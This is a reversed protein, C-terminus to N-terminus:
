EASIHKDIIAQLEGNAKMEAIVENIAATLAPNEKNIVIAYDEVTFPEEIVVVDESQSALAIAVQDDIMVANIKKQSLAQVAEFGKSYREVTAGEIDGAYIDGTTGLQVGISKGTLDAASNITGVDDKHIIILQSAQVYTDTFDVSHKREETVTFGSVGIDAKGTTVAPIVSDFAMDEIHLELGLKAAINKAIDVDIGVFEDGERSEYPPFEANTAMTLVGDAVLTYETAAAPADASAEPAAEKSGGCATMSLALMAALVAATLKKM